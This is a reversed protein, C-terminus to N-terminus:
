LANESSRNATGFGSKPRAPADPTSEPWCIVVGRCILTPTRYSNQPPIMFSRRVAPSDNVQTFSAGIYSLTIRNRPFAVNRRHEWRGM